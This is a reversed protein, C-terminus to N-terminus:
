ARHREAQNHRADAGGNALLELAVVSYRRSRKHAYSGIVHPAPRHIRSKRRQGARRDQSNLL